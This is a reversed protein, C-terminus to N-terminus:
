PPLTCLPRWGDERGLADLVLAALTPDYARLEERTNVHNHIGNPPVAEINTDFWDQVGEAWYERENTAAYTEAFLGLSIANDFATTLRERMAAAGAVRAVGLEFFTHAFEHVLISEGGYRDAPLGLLNEEGVSTLPRALTAGLGRARTDWDTEPFAENLDSHEPMDTTVESEAMIGVRVRSAILADRVDPRGALMNRLVDAAVVFARDDVRSSSLLPLGDIDVYKTYFPDLSFRERVAAPVGSVALPACPRPGAPGADAVPGAGADSGSDPGAADTMTQASADVSAGADPQPGASDMMAAAAADVSPGADITVPSHSCASIPALALLVLAASSYTPM